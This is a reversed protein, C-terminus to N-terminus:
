KVDKRMIEHLLKAVRAFNKVFQRYYSALRLFKQIDEVSRLVPWNVVGQVKGKEMKVRDPGIAVRLFGVERVKWM